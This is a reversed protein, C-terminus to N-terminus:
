ADAEATAPDTTALQARERRHRVFGVAAAASLVIAFMLGMAWTGGLRGLQSTLYSVWNGASLATIYTAGQASEPLAYGADPAAATISPAFYSAILLVGSMIVIGAILGRFLNGRMLPACMAVFFATAALDGFPLTSNLPLFAALLLTIPVMLVGLIVTAPHGVLLASDLGVYAERGKLRRQFFVQAQETLPVLAEMFVSIVKPLFYMVAALTIGLKLASSVEGTGIAGIVIGLIGGIAFPEGAVGLKNQLRDVDLNVDRLGPTRDLIWQLGLVVPVSTTAWGHAISVGPLQFFSQVRSATADAILLSFVAHTMSALVGALYNDGTIKFVVAGSFAYCWFNWIDLNLTKTMRLLLMVVNMCFIIPITTAGVATGLAIAAVAGFGVDIAQLHLDLKTALGDAAPALSEILLNVVVGLMVFGIGLLVGARIAKPWKVGLILAVLAIVIPLVVANGLSDRVYELM